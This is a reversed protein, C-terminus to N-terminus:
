HTMGLSNPDITFPTMPMDMYERPTHFDHMDHMALMGNEDFAPSPMPMNLNQKSYMESLMLSEDHMSQHDHSRSFMDASASRHISDMPPSNNAIQPEPHSVHSLPTHSPPIMHSPDVMPSPSLFPGHFSVNFDAAPQPMSPQHPHSPFFGPSAFESTTATTASMPMQRMDMGYGASTDIQLNPGLPQGPHQPMPHFFSPQPPHFEQPSPHQIHFTPMSGHLMSFDIAVPVSRSRQRKHGGHMRGPHLGVHGPFSQEQFMGMHPPHPRAFHVNPQSAPRPIGMTPSVPASAPMAHLDFPNHRNQYTELSVLKALQGSLVKPHGGLHHTLIQSAQQDETFDGCQYFGGSGSSDMFFNPPRTLQIVLGGARPSAGNAPPQADGSELTIDKIFAFPFEIKYGASDNNIYYTICAKDPSYFIVLDMANQGVRRWNGITLSRCTFHHIVVKGSNADGGMMMSGTGYSVPQGPLGMLHPPFPKGERMAQIALFQRMSDPMHDLDDISDMGKKAVMKIKARRRSNQFWIQVSRETMNIDNAIRERTAATPTPNKAFEHELTVLQDQTARQRKQNKQQQTLTSKRPPRRSASNPNTLSNASDSANSTNPTSHDHSGAPSPTDDISLSEELITPESM